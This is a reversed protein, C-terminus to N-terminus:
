YYTYTIVISLDSVIAVVLCYPTRVITYLSALESLLSALCHPPMSLLSSLVISVILRDGASGFCLSYSPPYLNSSILCYLQWGSVLNLCGLLDSRSSRHGSVLGTASAHNTCSARTMHVASGRCTVGVVLGKLQKDLRYCLNKKKVDFQCTISKAILNIIHLFCHTHSM